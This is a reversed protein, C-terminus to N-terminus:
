SIRAFKIFGKCRRTHPTPMALSKKNRDANVSQFKIDILAAMFFKVTRITTPLRMPLITHGDPL